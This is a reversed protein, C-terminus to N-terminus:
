LRVIQELLAQRERTQQILRLFKEREQEDVPEDDLHLLVLARASLARLVEALDSHPWLPNAIERYSSLLLASAALAQPDEEQFVLIFREIVMALDVIPSHYNHIADEFDLLVPGQDGARFLVNGLNLDGHLVQASQDPLDTTYDKLASRVRPDLYPRDLVEERGQRFAQDRLLSAIRIEERWPLRQLRSHMQALVRGLMPLRSAEKGAPDGDILECALLYRFKSIPRPFSPLLRSVQIGQDHLWSAIEDAAVQSLLREPDVVKLFL